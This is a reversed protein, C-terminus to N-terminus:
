WAGMRHLCSGWWSNFIQFQMLNWEKKKISCSLGVCFACKLFFFSTSVIHLPTRNLPLLVRHPFDHKSDNYHFLELFYILQWTSLMRHSLTLGLHVHFFFIWTMYNFQHYTSLILIRRTLQALLMICPLKYSCTLWFTYIFSSQFLFSIKKQRIIIVSRIHM